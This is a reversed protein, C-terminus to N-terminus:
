SQARYPLVSDWLDGVPVQNQDPARGKVMPSKFARYFEAVCGRCITKGADGVMGSVDFPRKGCFLCKWGGSEEDYHSLAQEVTVQSDIWRAAVGPYNEEAGSKVEDVTGAGSTGLVNWEDDCHFLMPGIDKGLNVCIALRPVKEVLLDGSYLTRWKRYAIDDVFAYFLVRASGIVPPPPRNTLEPM